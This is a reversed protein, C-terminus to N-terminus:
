GTWTNDDNCDNKYKSFGSEPPLGYIDEKGSNMGDRKIRAINFGIFCIFFMVIFAIVWSFCSFDFM